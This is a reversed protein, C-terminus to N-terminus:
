ILITNKLNGHVKIYNSLDNLQDLMIKEAMQNMEKQVENCKIYNLHDRNEIFGRKMYQIRHDISNLADIYCKFSTEPKFLIEPGIYTTGDIEFKNKM